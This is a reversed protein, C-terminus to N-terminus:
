KEQSAGDRTELARELAARREKSTALPDYGPPAKKRSSLWDFARVRAGPSADELAIQNEEVIRLEFDALGTSGRLIEALSGPQRGAEGARRILLAELELSLNKDSLLAALTEITAKEILWGVAGTDRAPSAKAAVLVAEAVQDIADDSGSV